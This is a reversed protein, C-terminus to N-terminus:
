RTSEQSYSGIRHRVLEHSVGRDCIIKVSISQHELVSEHGRSILNKVFKLSGDATHRDESKYCVRGAVEIDRLMQEHNIWTLIEFGANVIKV